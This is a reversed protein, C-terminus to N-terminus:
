PNMVSTPVAVPVRAESVPEPEILRVALAVAVLEFEVVPEAEIEITADPLPVREESVPAPEILM